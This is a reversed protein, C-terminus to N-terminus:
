CNGRQAGIRLAIVGGGDATAAVEPRTAYSRNLSLGNAARCRAKGSSCPMSGVAHVTSRRLPAASAPGPTTRRALAGRPTASRGGRRPSSATASNTGISRCRWRRWRGPPDLDFILRDPREIKPARALWTDLTIVGQNALYVLTAQNACVVHHVPADRGNGRRKTAVDRLWDPFHDPRDQQFFGDGEIGDPFRELTLPRGELHPLMTAAVDRYYAILDGKTFGADPFFVKDENSLEVTYRGFRAMDDERPDHIPEIFDKGHGDARPSADAM